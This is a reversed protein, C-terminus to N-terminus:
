RVARWEGCCAAGGQNRATSSPESQLPLSRCRGAGHAAPPRPGEDTPTVAPTLLNDPDSANNRTCRAVVEPIEVPPM